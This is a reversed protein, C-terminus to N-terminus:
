FTEPFPAFDEPLPMNGPADTGQESIVPCLVVVGPEEITVLGAAEAALVAEASDFLVEPYFESAFGSALIDDLTVGEATHVVNVDWHPTYGAEGPVKEV